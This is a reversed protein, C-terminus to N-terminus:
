DEAKRLANNYAACGTVYFKNLKTITFFVGAKNPTLKFKNQKISQHFGVASYTFVKEKFQRFGSALLAPYACQVLSM